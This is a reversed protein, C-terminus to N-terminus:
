RDGPIYQGGHPHHPSFSLLVTQFYSSFAVAFLVLSTVIKLDIFKFESLPRHWPSSLISQVITAPSGGIKLTGGWYAGCNKM